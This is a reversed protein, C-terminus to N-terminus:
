GHHPPVEDRLYDDDPDPEDGWGIAAEDRTRDPLLAGFPDARRPVAPTDGPDSAAPESETV